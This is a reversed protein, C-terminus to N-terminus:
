GEEVLETWDTRAAVVATWDTYHAVVSTWTALTTSTGEGPAGAAGQMVSQWDIGAATADGFTAYVDCMDDWRTGIVGYSLGAPRDVEIFPLEISRWQRRMDNSLRTIVVTGVALYLDDVGYRAPGQLMLPTGPAMTDKVNNRDTFTRAVLGLSSSMGGRIRSAPVPNRKNIVIPLNGRDEFSEEALGRFYLSQGPVCESGNSKLIIRRDNYPRLPDRLWLGNSSAIVVEISNATSASTGDCAETRYYVPTDLPMETDYVIAVGTALLICEGDTSSGNVRVVTEEGTTVDVRIIKAHTVLVEDAWDVLIYVHGHVSDPVVDIAPM